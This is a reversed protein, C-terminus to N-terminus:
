VRGRMKTMGVGSGGSSESFWSAIYRVQFITIGILSASEFISIWHVRNNSVTLRDRMFQEQVRIHHQLKEIVDLDDAIKIVSDVMPGLDELMAVEHHDDVEKDSTIEFTVMKATWRSMRNDFCIEHEGTVYGTFDVVGEADNRQADQRNFFALKDVISRGNPDSVRIKIDLLGGRVVEFKLSFPLGKEVDAYFCESSRPDVQFTLEGLSPVILLICCLLVLVIRM